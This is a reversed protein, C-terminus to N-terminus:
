SESGKGGIKGSYDELVCCSYDYGKPLMFAHFDSAPYASVNTTNSQNGGLIALYGPKGPVTGVVFGVHGGGKRTKVAIAGYVPRSAKQGDPWRAEWERARFADTAIGYGATKMVYAVLSACWANEAGSDDKGWFKAAKFYEAIRPNMKAGAYESVGKEGLAIPMWDPPPCCTQTSQGDGSAGTKAADEQVERALSDSGNGAATGSTTGSTPGSGNQSAPPSFPTVKPAAFGQTLGAWFGICGQAIAPPDNNPSERSRNGIPSM